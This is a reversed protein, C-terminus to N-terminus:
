GSEWISAAVIEKQKKRILKMGPLKMGPFRQAETEFLYCYASCRCAQGRGEFCFQIRLYRLRNCTLLRLAEVTLDLSPCHTHSRLGSLRSPSLKRFTKELCLFRIQSHQYIELMTAKKESHADYVCRLRIFQIDNCMHSSLTNSLLRVSLQTLM